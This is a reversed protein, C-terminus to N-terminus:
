AAKGAHVILVEVVEGAATAAELAIAFREAGAGAAVVRGQDDVALYAGADFTGGAVAKTAGLVCVAAAGGPAYPPIELIGIPTQDTGTIADIQNDGVLRVAHWQKATLDVGPAGAFSELLRQGIAAM